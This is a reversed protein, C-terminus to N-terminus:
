VDDDEETWIIRKQYVVHWVRCAWGPWKCSLNLMIIYISSTRVTTASWIITKLQTETGHM